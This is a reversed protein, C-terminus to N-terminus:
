RVVEMHTRAGVVRRPQGGRLVAIEQRTVTLVRELHVKHREGAQAFAELASLNEPEAVVREQCVDSKAQAMTEALSERRLLVPLPHAGQRSHWREVARREMEAKWTDLLGTLESLPVGDALDCAFLDDLAQFPKMRGMGIENRLYAARTSSCRQPKGNPASPISTRAALYQTRLRDAFSVSETRDHDLRTSM